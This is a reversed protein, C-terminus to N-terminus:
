DIQIKNNYKFIVPLNILLNASVKYPRTAHVEEITFGHFLRMIPLKKFGFKFGQSSYKKHKRGDQILYM